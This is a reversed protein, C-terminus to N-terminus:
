DEYVENIKATLEGIKFPKGKVKPFSIAPVLYKARMLMALQGMNLEPVLVRDFRGLIEGFNKPFPNLYRLHVSSVSKGQRQMEEVASTIAGHTSGWGVVLLRGESEGFIEAEPINNAILAIKEARTWVMHQHNEPDYSVNGTIDQKEIGGVRHELGPTGPIAWPRSLTEPTRQYPQFGESETHFSVNFSPLEDMDPLRWPEAGNALYGDSLYIVPVMHATAIRFAEVAMHFCDGPTAPAVIAVPCEGNRGYMAQLLDAQETKTPLGTSPGGRQVDVVVLPLETMVALGIAESKLALGPGSTGTLGLQGAFSAGIAACVAAIEDEAQFTKVGFNKHISLEHLIDSAPTIPYSAYFLPRKALVSAAVFGLATAENGTINRYTGPAIAAKRVRYHTTFIEAADAYAFGAKLATQNAKVVEPKRAFKAELWRMTPDLPRDYLWYMLGLAWFNRCRDIEKPPLKVEDRLAARNLTTIPLKFLRYGALSGDDLPNEPYGAKKLNNENFADTNVILIGGQELDPLNVKLAAPNMAVLVNPEDGPTRIDHNSFNLQFGSVGPLSGAPARIEAPFDPLTSIDNGLVATTNTFQTGTLQMGDGSDGAFRITVTDLEEIHKEEVNNLITTSEM